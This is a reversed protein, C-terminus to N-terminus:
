HNLWFNGLRLRSQNPSISSNDTLSTFMENCTFREFINRFILLLSIPSCIKVCQKKRQKQVPVSSPVPVPVKKGNSLFSVRM